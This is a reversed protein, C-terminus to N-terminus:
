GDKEGYERGLGLCGSLKNSDRYNQRKCYTMYNSDYLIIGYTAKQINWIYGETYEM